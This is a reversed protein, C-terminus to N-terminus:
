EPIAVVIVRHTYAWDPWCTILTLRPEDSPDMWTAHELRERLDVGLERVKLVERVLFTHEAGDSASVVVADGPALEWLGYFVGGEDSRSHGSLVCNGQGGLPASDLHHGVAREATDWVGVTQGEREELHWSVPVIPADAGLSPIRIRGIMGTVDPFTPPASRVTATPRTAVAASPSPTATGEARLASAQRTPTASPTVALTPAPAAVRRCCAAASLAVLGLACIVLFPRFSRPM